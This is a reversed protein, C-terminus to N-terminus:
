SPFCWVGEVGWSGWGLGGGGGGGEVWGEASLQMLLRGHVPQPVLPHSQTM